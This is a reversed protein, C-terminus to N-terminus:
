LYVWVPLFGHSFNGIRTIPLLLILAAIPVPNIIAFISLFDSSTALAIDISGIAEV